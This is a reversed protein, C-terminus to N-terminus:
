LRSREPSSRGFSTKAAGFRSTACITVTTFSLRGRDADGALADQLMQFDTRGDDMVYAVEGDFIATKARVRSLAKVVHPFRDTWEKGNRSWLTVEGDVLWALIRSGDYKLESIWDGHVPVDDVLTALQPAISGPPPV